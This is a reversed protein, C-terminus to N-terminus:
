LKGDGSRRDAGRHRRTAACWRRRRNGITDPRREAGAGRRSWALGGAHCQSLRDQRWAQGFLFRGPCPRSLHYHIAPPRLGAGAQGPRRRYGAPAMTHLPARCCRRGAGRQHAALRPRRAQREPGHLRGAPPNREGRDKRRPRGPGAPLHARGFGCSRFVAHGHRCPARRRIPRSAQYLSRQCLGGPRARRYGRFCRWHCRVPRRLVRTPAAPAWYACRRGDHRLACLPRASGAGSRAGSAM